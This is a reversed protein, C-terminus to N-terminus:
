AVWAADHDIDGYIAHAEENLVKLTWDKSMMRRESLGQKALPEVREGRLVGHRVYAPDFLFMDSADGASGGNSQYYPQLRNDHMEYARGHDSIYVNVYGKAIMGNGRTAGANTGRANQGGAGSVKAELTAIRAANNAVLYQNLKSIAKPTSMIINANGGLVYNDEILQRLIAESGARKTGPTKATVLGTGPQFGPILGSTGLSKTTKIWAAFGAAQGAVTDTGRVSAQGTLMIGEIDRRLERTRMFIGYGLRRAYGITDVADARSSVSIAKLSIQAHNGQRNGLNDDNQSVDAGDVAKNTLNQTQLRDVTWESYQNSVDDRGIKDSFPLPIQSIDYIKQIVDENIGSGGTMSHLNHADTNGSAM